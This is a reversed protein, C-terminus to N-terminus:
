LPLPTPATPTPSRGGGCAAAVGVFLFFPLVLARRMSDRLATNVAVSGARIRRTTLAVMELSLIRFHARFCSAGPTNVSPANVHGTARAASILATMASRPARHMSRVATGCPWTSARSAGPGTCTGWRPMFRSARNAWRLPLEFVQCAVGYKSPDTTYGPQTVQVYTSREQLLEVIREGLQRASVTDTLLATQTTEM